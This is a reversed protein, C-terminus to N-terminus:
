KKDPFLYREFLLSSVRFKRYQEEAKELLTRNERYYDVFFSLVAQRVMPLNHMKELLKNVLKQDDGFVYHPHPPNPYEFKLTGKHAVLFDLSVGFLTSLKHMVLLNPMAQGNEIRSYQVRSINLKEAMQGQNLHEQIRVIRLKDGVNELLKKEDISGNKKEEMSASYGLNFFFDLNGPM